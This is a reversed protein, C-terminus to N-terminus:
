IEGEPLSYQLHLLPTPTQDTRLMPGLCDSLWFFYKKRPFQENVPYSIATIQFIHHIELRTRLRPGAPTRLRSSPRQPLPPPNNHRDAYCSMILCGLLFLYM